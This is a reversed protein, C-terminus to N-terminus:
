LIGVAGEAWILLVVALIAGGIWIRRTRDRTRGAVIEYAVGGGILLTAAAVFDFGTWVVERTFQMAVLPLLLIIGIASWMAVRRMPVANIRM